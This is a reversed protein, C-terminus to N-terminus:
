VAGEGSRICVRQTPYVFSCGIRRRFAEADLSFMAAIGELTDGPRVVYVEEGRPLLLLSGPPPFAQLNNAAILSAYALGRAACVSQLTDGNRVVYLGFPGAGCTQLLLM